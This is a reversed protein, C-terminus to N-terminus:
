TTTALWWQVFRDKNSDLSESKAEHCTSEWFQAGSSAVSVLWKDAVVRRSSKM